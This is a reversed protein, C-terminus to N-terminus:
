LGIADNIGGAFYLIKVLISDRQYVTIASERRCMLPRVLLRNLYNLRLKNNITLTYQFISDAIETLANQFRGDSDVHIRQLIGVQLLFDEREVNGENDVIEGGGEAIQLELPAGTPTPLIAPTLYIDQEGLQPFVEKLQSVVTTCIARTIM